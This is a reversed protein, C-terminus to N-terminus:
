GCMNATHHPHTKTKTPHSIGSLGAFVACDVSISLCPRQIYLVISLGIWALSNIEQSQTRDDYSDPAVFMTSPFVSFRSRVHRHWTPHRPELVGFM